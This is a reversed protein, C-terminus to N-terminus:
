RCGIEMDRIKETGDLLYKIQIALLYQAFVMLKANQQFIAKTSTETCTLAGFSATQSPIRM